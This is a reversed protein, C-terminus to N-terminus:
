DDNGMKKSRKPDHDVTNGHSKRKKHRRKSPSVGSGSPMPFQHCGSSDVHQQRVSSLSSSSQQPQHHLQVHTSSHPQNSALDTQSPLQPPLSVAALNPQVQAMSSVFLASGIHHSQPSAPLHSPLALRSRSVYDDHLMRGSGNEERTRSLEAVLDSFRQDYELLKRNVENVKSEQDSLKSSQEALIRNQELIIGEQESAKRQVENLKAKHEALEKKLASLSNKHNKFATHVKQLLDVSHPSQSFGRNGSTGGGGMGMNSGAGSLPSSPGLAALSSGGVMGNSPGPSTLSSFSTHPYGPSSTIMNAGPRALSGGGGIENDPGLCEFSSGGVIGNSPGPSTIPSFSLSYPSLPFRPSSSTIMNPKLTPIIKEEFHEMAMSSIDRLETLIEHARPPTKTTQIFRLVKYIEDIVKGPIFCCLQCDVYKIFTMSLLSLRTEIATLIDCHRALPHSRRESERRPLQSKVERLCKAQYREVARFGSNLIREGTQNFKRCVIRLHAIEDYSMYSLIKELVIDPLTTLVLYGCFGGGTNRERM